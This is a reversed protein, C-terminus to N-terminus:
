LVLKNVGHARMAELLNLTGQTNTSFYVHPNEISYRVGARAALNIVADFRESGFIRDLASRDEIDVIHMSFRGTSPEPAGASASAQGQFSELSKLRHQKLRVDYYANLNDIGVVEHGHALLLECTRAGIFGAAGTVLIRQVASTTP